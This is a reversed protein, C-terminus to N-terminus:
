ATVALHGLCAAGAGQFGSVAQEDGGFILLGVTPMIGCSVLPDQAQSQFDKTGPRGSYNGWVNMTKESQNDGM